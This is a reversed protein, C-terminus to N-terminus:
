GGFAEHNTELGRIMTKLQSILEQKNEGCQHMVILKARGGSEVGVERNEKDYLTTEMQETSFWKTPIQSEVKISEDLQKACFVQEAYNAIKEASESWYDEHLSLGDDELREKGAQLHLIGVIEKELQKIIERKMNKKNEQEKETMKKEYEKQIIQSQKDAFDNPTKSGDNKLLELPYCTEFMQVEEVTEPFPNKFTPIWVFGMGFEGVNYEPKVWIRKSAWAQQIEITPLTGTNVVKGGYEVLLDFLDNASQVNIKKM